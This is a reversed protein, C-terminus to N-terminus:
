FNEHNYIELLHQAKKGALSESSAAMKLHSLAKEINGQSLHIEGLTEYAEATPFLLLSKELHLQASKLNLQHACVGLGLPFEFYAPNLDYAKQFYTLAGQPDNLQLRAKGALNYLHAHQPFLSLTKEALSLAEQFNGKSLAEYGKELAEDAKKLQHLNKTVQKYEEEGDIFSTQKDYVAATKENAKIREESPPHTSFLGTIWHPRKEKSLRLFTKQLEIAAKPSYGAAVMYKIGYDDAELEADRSYKLQVLSTSLAGAATLFPEYPHNKLIEQIGFLGMQMLISREISKASHRAASHVIEHSLVAALEAESNLETLLGRNIAIKGGPLAWANPISNDLIVFEYPLKKRDSVSSLKHGVKQIYNTLKLDQMYAGGEAQQMLLYQESGLAIEQSKSLLTLEKKGTVPNHSCAYLTTLLLLLYRM